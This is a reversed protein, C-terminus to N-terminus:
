PLFEYVEPPLERRHPPDAGARSVTIASVRIAFDIAAVVEAPALAAVAGAGLRDHRGLWDLLGATFSDGAGITDAVTVRHAPRSIEVDGVITLAGQAGCTVVVLAAGLAQWRRCVEAAGVGPYLAALDDVSVKVLDACHLLSEFRARLGDIDDVVAPRVNPDLSITRAGKERRLLDGLVTAGPELALALSGTHIAMVDDPFGVPIEAPSWQWDATGQLYFAYEATGGDGISAVALTCPEGASVSYSLDVGNVELHRRLQRGFADGSLRGAFAVPTGLRALAVATNAPGGGPHAVYSAPDSGGTTRALDILAEGVVVVTMEPLM